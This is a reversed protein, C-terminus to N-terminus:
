SIQPKGVLLDLYINKPFVVLFGILILKNNFCAEAKTM